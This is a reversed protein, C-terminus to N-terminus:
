EPIVAWARVPMGNADAIRACAVFLIAGVPPLEDLNNMAEIQFLDQDLIYRECQLDGVVSSTIPADTDLTEHGIAGIRREEVLFKLVDMTWGPFHPRGEYVNNLASGDPWRKSWDTRMAVLSGAPIRGFETEFAEIDDLTIEYDHNTEAQEHLDIVVMPLALELIDFDKNLRKGPIFHGPFDIHTGFQGPTTHASIRLNFGDDFDMIIRNLDVAGDPMDEWYPSDEDLLHSLEIWRNKKLEDLLPWLGSM